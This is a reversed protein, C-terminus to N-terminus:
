AIEDTSGSGVGRIWRDWLVLRNIPTTERLEIKRRARHMYTEVTKPSLLLLAAAGAQSGRDIVAQMVRAESQSIGWPNALYPPKKHAGM